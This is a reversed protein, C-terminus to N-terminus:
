SHRTILKVKLNKIKKFDKDATILTLKEIKATAAILLDKLKLKGAQEKEMRVAEMMIEKNLNLPACKNLLQEGFTEEKATKTGILLEFYTLVSVFFYKKNLTKLKKLMDEDDGLIYILINTDLLYETAM